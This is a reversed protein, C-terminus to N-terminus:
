SESASKKAVYFPQIDYFKITTPPPITTADCFRNMYMRLGQKTKREKTLYDHYYYYFQGNDARGASSLYGIVVWICECKAQHLACPPIWFTFVQLACM